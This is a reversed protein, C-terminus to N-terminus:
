KRGQKQKNDPTLNRQHVVSFLLPSGTVIGASSALDANPIRQEMCTGYFHSLPIQIAGQHGCASGFHAGGRSLKLHFGPLLSLLFIGKQLGKSQVPLLLDIFQDPCIKVSINQVQQKLAASIRQVPSVPCWPVGSGDRARDSM